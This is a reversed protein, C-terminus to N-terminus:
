DPLGLGNCFMRGGTGKIVEYGKAKLAETFAKQTMWHDGSWAQFADYLKSTQAKVTQHSFCAEAIFGGLVDMEAQYTTTAQRVEDPEGLGYRQWDLCGRVAWALIGPLEARLRKVRDKDKEEEAITVSWPVLKVRRWMAYDTGRITPKHNAALVLKATMEFEFFDQRMKRARIRDGGTLQKLLAEAMRKGQDTEITCVFRRGFLDARETPHTENHKALLLDSVAQMAYEGLMALITCLFTSKGNAGAGHFLWLCQEKVSGTLWYGVTRQLYGILEKNSDMWRDLCQMWLPCEANPRYEVPALKTLFDERRHERLQGTRLDITGNKVNLLFPDADLQSPMIPIGPESSASRLCREINRQDEWKLLHNLLKQLKALEGKRAPDQDDIEGLQKIQEAVRFFLDGITEKVRRVAEATEDIAWRRKDWALWVRWPHCFRLENGHREVIRRANGLDTLHVDAADAKEHSTHKRRTALEGNNEDRGDGNTDRRQQLQRRLIDALTEPV